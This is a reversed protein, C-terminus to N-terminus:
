ESDSSEDSDSNNRNFRTRKVDAIRALNKQRRKAQHPRIWYDAHPASYSVYNITDYGSDSDDSLDGGYKHDTSVSNKDQLYLSAPLRSTFSDAWEKYASKSAVHTYRVEISYKEFPAEHKLLSASQPLTFQAWACPRNCAVKGRKTLYPRKFYIDVHFTSRQYHQNHLDPSTYAPYVETEERTTPFTIVLTDLALKFLSEPNYPGIYPKFKRSRKTNMAEWSTNPNPLQEYPVMVGPTLKRYTDMTTQRGKHGIIDKTFISDDLQRWQENIFPRDEAAYGM